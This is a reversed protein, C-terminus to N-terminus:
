QSRVPSNTFLFTGDGVRIPERRHAVAEIGAASVDYIHTYGALAGIANGFAQELRKRFLRFGFIREVKMLARSVFESRVAERYISQNLHTAHFSVLLPPWGLRSLVSAAEPLLDFEGGEIDMKILDVHDIGSEDIVQDLSVGEVRLDTLDDGIRNLLSSSSAGYRKRAHLTLPGDGATVACQFTRVRRTLDPNLALNELLREYAEPDPDISVVNASAAAAYLAFPGIWCGIDLFTGGSPLVADIADFTSAEWEGANVAEWFLRDEGPRVNFVITNRRIIM